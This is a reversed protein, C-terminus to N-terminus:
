LLLGATTSNGTKSELLTDLDYDYTYDMLYYGDAAKTVSKLSEIRGSGFGAFSGSFAIGASVILSVAKTFLNFSLM